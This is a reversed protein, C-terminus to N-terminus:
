LCMEAPTTGHVLKKLPSLFWTLYSRPALTTTTLLEQWKECRKALALERAANWQVMISTQIEYVEPHKNYELLWGLACSDPGLISSIKRQWDCYLVASFARETWFPNTWNPILKKIITKIADLGEPDQWRPQWAMISDDSHIGLLLIDFQVHILLLTHSIVNLAFHCPCLILAVRNWLGCKVYANGSMTRLAHYVVSKMYRSWLYPKVYISIQRPSVIPPPSNIPVPTVHTLSSSNIIRM